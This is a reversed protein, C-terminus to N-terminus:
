PGDWGARGSFLTPTSHSVGGCGRGWEFDLVSAAFSRQSSPHEYNAGTGHKQVAVPTHDADGRLTYGHSTVRQCRFRSIRFVSILSCTRAWPLCDGVALCGEAFFDRNCEIVGPDACINHLLELAFRNVTFPGYEVPLHLRTASITQRVTRLSACPRWFNVPWGQSM